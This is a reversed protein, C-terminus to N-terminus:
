YTYGLDNCADKIANIRATTCANEYGCNDLKATKEKHNIVGILNNYFWVKTINGATTVVTNNGGWNMKKTIAQTINIQYDRM